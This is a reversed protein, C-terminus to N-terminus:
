GIDKLALFINLNGITNIKFYCSVITNPNSWNILGKETIKETSTSDAYTVFANGAFLIETSKSPRESSAAPTINNNCGLLIFVFLITCIRIM